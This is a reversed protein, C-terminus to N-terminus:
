QFDEQEELLEVDEMRLLGVRGDLTGELWTGALWVAPRVGTIVAGTDFSLQTEDEGVCGCRARVRRPQLEQWLQQGRFWQEELNAEEVEKHEEVTTDWWSKRALNIARCWQEEVEEFESRSM